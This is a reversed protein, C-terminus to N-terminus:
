FYSVIKATLTQAIDGHRTTSLLRPTISMEDVEVIGELSSLQTMIEIIDAEMEKLRIAKDEFSYANYNDLFNVIVSHCIQGEGRGEVYLVKPLQIWATPFTEIAGEITSESAIIPHYKRETALDSILTEIQTIDM